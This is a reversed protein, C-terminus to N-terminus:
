FPEPDRGLFIKGDKYYLYDKPNSFMLELLSGKRSTLVSNKVSIFTDGGLNLHVLHDDSSGKEADGKGDM